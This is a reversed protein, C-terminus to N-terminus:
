WTVHRRANRGSWWGFACAAAVVVALVIVALQVPALLRAVLAEAASTEPLRFLSAAARVVALGWQPVLGIMVIGAAHIYMPWLMTRPAEGSAHISTDRPQGLFAVGFARVMSLASVAGVFALLAAAGVLAANAVPSPAGGSLLGAYVVFESVFGNLP